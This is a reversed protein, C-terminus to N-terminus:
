APFVIGFLPSIGLSLNKFSLLENILIWNYINSVNTNSCKFFLTIFIFIGEYNKWEFTLGCKANQFM